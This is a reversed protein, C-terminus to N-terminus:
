EQQWGLLHWSAFDKGDIDQYICQQELVFIESRLALMAYVQAGTLQAFECWQWQIM